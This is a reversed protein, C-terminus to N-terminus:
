KEVRFWDIDVTGSDNTIGERLAFYGVKAGIWRGPKATFAEGVTEFYKGNSSYSFTCIAGKKVEIKFYIENNEVVENYLEIEKGGTRANECKAVRLHLQRETQKLSIYQYDEGMVVFGTEEDDTRPNFSIKTTASFEEAPFKQLLLNPVMWLGEEGEPRVICNLRYFGLNGSPFGYSIHKNAQWQWQIGLKNGNFEDSEPPTSVPYTAGVDPKKYTLVPEGIGDGDKDVGIIPWDNQWTMPNLHVIRGYADKDQFHIFWNEGTKTDVWAGQHPGNIETEGQAMVIKIDYPGYVNKSRLVTQWGTSVGGAPAFIYYYGNAKYFKPGEITPHNEHGDFVMVEDGIVATGESNMEQVLLVSKVRARSGAFAHTLYVKGNDDWLPSPDILGKGAKVLIPESWPGEAQKAKIMYIGFDPDPYYIYFENNHYRICPAWVGNGHQPIRFVDEPVQKKLAYTILQWNVLDKSHLIPLGPVCNFSSATMYYDDGVRVVDPDSYDAHLIPNKYTGDGNDAIWVKSIESQASSFLSLGSILILILIAPKLNM